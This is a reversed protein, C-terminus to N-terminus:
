GGVRDEEQVVGEDVTVEADPLVVAAIRADRGDAASVGDAVAESEVGGDIDVVEAGGDADPVDEVGLAGSQAVLVVVLSNDRAVHETEIQDRTKDAADSAQKCPLNKTILRIPKKRKKHIYKSVLVGKMQRGYLVSKKDPSHSAIFHKIM